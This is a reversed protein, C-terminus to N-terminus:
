FDKFQEKVEKWTAPKVDVSQNVHFFRTGLFRTNGGADSVTVSAKVTLADTPQFGAVTRLVAFFVLGEASTSAAAGSLAYSNTYLGTEDRTGATITSGALINTEAPLTFTAEGNIAIDNDVIDPGGESARYTAKAGDWELLVTFGAAEQWQMAYVAFGVRASAGINLVEGMGQYGSTKLDTDLLFYANANKQAFATGTLFVFLSLLCIVASLKKM